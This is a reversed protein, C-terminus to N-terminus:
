RSYTYYYEEYRCYRFWIDDWSKGQNSPNGTSETRIVSIIILHPAEHRNNHQHQAWGWHSVAGRRGSCAVNTMATKVIDREQDGHCGRSSWRCVATKDCCFYNQEEQKCSSTLITTVLELKGVQLSWWRDHTSSGWGCNHNALLHLGPCGYLRAPSLNNLPAILCFMLETNTTALIDFISVCQMFVFYIIDVLCIWQSPDFTIIITGIFEWLTTDVIANSHLTTAMLESNSIFM